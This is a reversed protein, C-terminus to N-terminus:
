RSMRMSEKKKFLQKSMWLIKREKELLKQSKIKHIKKAQGFLQHQNSRKSRRKNINIMHDIVM